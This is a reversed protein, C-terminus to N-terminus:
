SSSTKSGGALAKKLAVVRDNPDKMNLAWWTAAISGIETGSIETFLDAWPDEALEGDEGRLVTMDVPEGDADLLRAYRRCALRAAKNPDYGFRAGMEDSPPCEAMVAAWDMGDLRRLEVNFLEDGVAVPVLVPEPRSERAKALADRFSMM